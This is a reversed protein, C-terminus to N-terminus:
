GAVTSSDDDTADCEEPNQESNLMNRFGEKDWRSMKYTAGYIFLMGLTGDSRKTSDDFNKICDVIRGGRRVSCVM